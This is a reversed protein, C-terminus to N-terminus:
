VIPPVPGTVTIAAGTAATVGSGTSVGNVATMTVTNAIATMLGTISAARTIDARGTDVTM